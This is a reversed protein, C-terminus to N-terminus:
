TPTVAEGAQASSVPGSVQIQDTTTACLNTTNSAPQVILINGDVLGSASTVADTLAAASASSILANVFIPREIITQFALSSTNEIKIFSKTAESSSCVFKPDAIRGNKARTTGSNKFWLTPRAASQVLTDFGFEPREYDFSDARCIFDAVTAVNLDTFKMTSLCDTFTAEGEDIFAAISNAHTGSNSVKLGRFSNGTGTNTITSALDLLNGATSLNIRARQATKRGGTLLFDLGVFNVRSKSTTLMTDLDHSGQSGIVIVDHRNSVTAAYAAALDTFFRVDGDNDTTFLEAIRDAHQDGPAMVVFTKGFTAGILKALM